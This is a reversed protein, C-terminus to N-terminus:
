RFLWTVIYYGLVLAAGIILWRLVVVETDSMIGVGHELRIDQRVGRELEQRVFVREAQQRHTSDARQLVEGADTDPRCPILTEGWGGSVRSVYGDDALFDVTMCSENAAIFRAHTWTQAHGTQTWFLWLVLAGVLFLLIYKVATIATKQDPNM